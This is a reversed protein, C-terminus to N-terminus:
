YYVIHVEWKSVNHETRVKIYGPTHIAILAWSKLIREELSSVAPHSEAPPPANPSTYAVHLGVTALLLGPIGVLPHVNM